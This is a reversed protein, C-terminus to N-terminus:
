SRPPATTGRPIFEVPLVTRCEGASAGDILATVFGAARRGVDAAPQRITTLGPAFHAAAVADDFGIVSMEDPVAIGRRRLEEIWLLARHDDGALIATPPDALRLLRDCADGVSLTGSSDPTVRLAPDPPIGHTLLADHYAAAREGFDASHLPAHFAIRRHGLDILHRVAATVGAANAIAVWGVNEPVEARQYVVVLPLGSQAVAALGTADLQGPGVILGDIRGDLLTAAARDPTRGAFHSFVLMDYGASAIGEAMGRALHMTIDRSADERFEWTFVGVAHTRGGQLSRILANPRFHLDAAAALVRARTETSLRGTNNLAKSVTSISVGAQRAVDSISSGRTAM